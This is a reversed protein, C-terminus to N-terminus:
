RAGSRAASQRIAARRMPATEIAAVLANADCPKCLFDFAGGEIALRRSRADDHATLFIVPLGPRMRHVRRQLELGDMGPMRVDLILCDIEQLTASDLFAGASAFTTVSYGASRLLARMSDRISEDDDVVSIRMAVAAEAFQVPQGDPPPLKGHITLDAFIRLIRSYEALAVSEAQRALALPSGAGPATGDPEQQLLRRYEQSAAKYRAHSEELRQRWSDEMQQRALLTASFIPDSM